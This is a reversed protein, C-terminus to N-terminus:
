AWNAHLLLTIIPKLLILIDAVVVWCGQLSFGLLALGSSRTIKKALTKWMRWRGAM